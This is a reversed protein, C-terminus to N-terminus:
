IKIEIKKNSKINIPGEDVKIPEKKKYFLDQEKVEEARNECFNKREESSAFSRAKKKDIIKATFHLEDQSVVDIDSVFWAAENSLELEKCIKDFCDKNITEGKYTMKPNYKLTRRGIHQEFQGALQKVLLLQFKADPILVNNVYIKEFVSSIVYEYDDQKKGGKGLPCYSDAIDVQKYIMGVLIDECGKYTLKHEEKASQGLGTGWSPTGGGSEINMNFMLSSLDIRM